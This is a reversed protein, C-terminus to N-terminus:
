GGDVFYGPEEAEPRNGLRQRNRDTRLRFLVQPTLREPLFSLSVSKNVQCHLVLPGFIRGRDKEWVDEYGKSKDRRHLDM